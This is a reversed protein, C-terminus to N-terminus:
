RRDSLLKIAILRGIVATGTASDNTAIAIRVDLMDGAVLSTPTITFDKSAATLNNISQLATACIDSGVGGTEDSRYVEADITCSSSAVTTKMGAILRLTTTKGCGSPGLLGFFEGAEVAVSVDSVAKAAGFSKSLDSLVLLPM